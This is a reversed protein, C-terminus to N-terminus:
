LFPGLRATLLSTVRPSPTSIQLFSSESIQTSITNKVQTSTLSHSNYFRVRYNHYTRNEIHM